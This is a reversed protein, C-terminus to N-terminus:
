EKNKLSFKSETGNKLREINSRHKVVILIAILIGLIVYITQQYLFYIFIPLSIAALISSLSVYRSIAFVVFFVIAAFLIAKPVLILFVGLTTAVAKGGKFNMFMSFVHGLIACIGVLVYDFNLIKTLNQFFDVRLLIAILTPVLGKSVDLILTLIGLKVGLVRAANTSGTNRSGHERIDIGKFVKGIWLANPVSGLIYALIMLLITIM